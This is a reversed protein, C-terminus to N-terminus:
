PAGGDNVLDRLIKSPKFTLVKRPAIIIEEGTKPNRGVREKKPRVVFSGFGVIQVREGKHLAEKLLDLTAEVVEASEHRSFGIKEHVLDIIDAKIM